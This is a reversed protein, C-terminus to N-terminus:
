IVSSVLLCHECLSCCRYPRLAFATSPNIFNRKCEIFEWSQKFHKNLYINLICLVHTVYAYVSLSICYYNKKYLEGASNLHM